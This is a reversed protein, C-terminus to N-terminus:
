ADTHLIAGTTAFVAVLASGAMVALAHGPRHM